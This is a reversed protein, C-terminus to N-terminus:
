IYLKQFVYWDWYPFVIDPDVKRLAEEFRLLMVRHAPFFHAGNHWENTMQNHIDAFTNYGDRKRHLTNIADLFRKREKNTLDRWEPRIRIGNPCKASALGVASLVLVASVAYQLLIAAKM